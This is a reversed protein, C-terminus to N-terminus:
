TLLFIITMIISTVFNGPFLIYIFLFLTPLFSLMDNPDFGGETMVDPFVVMQFIQFFHYSMFMGAFIIDFKQKKLSEPLKFWSLYLLIFLPYGLMFFKFEGVMNYVNYADFNFIIAFFIIAFSIPKKVRTWKDAMFRDEMAPNEFKCTYRDIRALDNTNIM